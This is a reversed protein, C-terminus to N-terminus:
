EIVIRNASLLTGSSNTIRYVYTGPALTELNISNVGAELDNKRVLEQGLLDYVIFDSEASLADDIRVFLTTSTPNPFVDIEVDAINSIGTSYNKFSSGSVLDLRAIFYDNVGNSVALNRPGVGMAGGKYFGSFYVGGMANNFALAGSACDTENGGFEDAWLVDDLDTDFKVVYLDQVSGSIPSTSARPSGTNDTYYTTEADTEGTAYVVDNVDVLVDHVTIPQFATGTIEAINICTLGLDFQAVWGKFDSGSSTCESNFCVGDTGYGFGGLYAYDDSLAVSWGVVYNHQPSPVAGINPTSWTFTGLDVKTIFPQASYNGTFGGIYADTANLEFDVSHICTTSTTVRINAGSSADFEALYSLSTGAASTFSNPPFNVTYGTTGQDIMSGAMYVHTGDENVKVGGLNRTSASPSLPTSTEVHTAWLLTGQANFKALYSTWEGNNYNTFTTTGDFTISGNKFFGALYTNGYLDVDIGTVGGQEGTQTTTNNTGTINANWLLTKNKDFKALWPLWNNTNNILTTGYVDVEDLFMGAAYEYDETAFLTKGQGFISRLDADQQSKIHLPWTAILSIDDINCDTYAGFAKQRLEVFATTSTNNHTYTASFQQWSGAGNTFTGISVGDIIAEIEITHAGSRPRVWFSFEYPEGNQLGTVTEGWILNATTSNLKGDLKLTYDSPNSHDGQGNHWGNANVCYRGPWTKCNSLHTFDTQFSPSTSPFSGNPIM